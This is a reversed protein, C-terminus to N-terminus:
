AAYLRFMSLQIVALYQIKLTCLYFDHAFNSIILHKKKGWIWRLGSHFLETQHVGIPIKREMSPKTRIITVPVERVQQCMIVPIGIMCWIVILIGVGTKEDEYKM